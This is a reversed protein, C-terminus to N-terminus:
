QKGKGNKTALDFLLQTTENNVIICGLHLRRWERIEDFGMIWEDAGINALIERKFCQSHALAFERDCIHALMALALQASGNGEFGWEYGHASYDRWSKRPSLHKGKAFM